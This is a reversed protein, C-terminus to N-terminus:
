ILEHELVANSTITMVRLAENDPADTFEYAIGMAGKLDAIVTRGFLVQIENIPRGDIDKIDDLAVDNTVGGPLPTLLGDYYFPEIDALRVVHNNEIPKVAMDIQSKYKIGAM